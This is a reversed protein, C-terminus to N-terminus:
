AYCAGTLPKTPQPQTEQSPATCGTREFKGNVLLYTLQYHPASAYDPEYTSENMTVDPIGDRNLDSIRGTPSGHLKSDTVRMAGNTNNVRLAVATGSHAGTGGTITCESIPGTGGCAAREIQDISGPTVDSLKITNVVQGNHRTAVFSAPLGSGSGVLGQITYGNGLEYNFAQQCGQECGPVGTGAAPTPAASAATGAIGVALLGSGLAALAKIGIKKM